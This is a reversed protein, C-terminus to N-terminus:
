KLNATVPISGITLKFIEVIRFVLLFSLATANGSDSGAPLLSFNDVEVRLTPNPFGAVSVPLAIEKSQANGIPVTETFNPVNIEASFRRNPESQQLDELIQVHIVGGIVHPPGIATGASSTDATSIM